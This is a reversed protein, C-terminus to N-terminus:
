LSTDRTEFSDVSFMAKLNGIAIVQDVDDLLKVVFDKPVDRAGSIGYNNVPMALPKTSYWRFPGDKNYETHSAVGCHFYWRIPAQEFDPKRTIRFGVGNGFQKWIVQDIVDAVTHTPKTNYSSTKSRYRLLLAEEDSLQERSIWTGM